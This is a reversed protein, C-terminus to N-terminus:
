SVKLTFTNRKAVVKHTEWIMTSPNQREEKGHQKLEYLKTPMREHVARRLDPSQNKERETMRNCIKQQAESWRGTALDLKSRVKATLCINECMVRSYKPVCLLERGVWHSCPAWIRYCCFLNLKKKKQDRRDLSELPRTCICSQLRLRAALNHKSLSFSEGPM